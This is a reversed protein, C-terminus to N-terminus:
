DEVARPGMMPEAALTIRDKEVLVDIGVLEARVDCYCMADPRIILDCQTLGRLPVWSGDTQQAEVEVDFGAVVIHRGDQRPVSRIRLRGPTIEEEPEEVLALPPRQARRLM